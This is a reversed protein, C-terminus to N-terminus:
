QEIGNVGACLTVSTITMGTITGLRIKLAIKDGRDLNIEGGVPLSFGVQAGFGAIELTETTETQEILGSYFSPGGMLALPMELKLDSQNVTFEVAADTLFIAFDIVAAAAGPLVNIVPSVFINRIQYAADIENDKPFNTVRNGTTEADINSNFFVPEVASDAVAQIHYYIRKTGQKMPQM